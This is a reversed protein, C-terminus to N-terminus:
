LMGGWRTLYDSRWDGEAHDHAEFIFKYSGPELTVKYQCYEYTEPRDDVHYDTWGRHITVSYSTTLWQQYDKTAPTGPPIAPSADDPYCSITGAYQTGAPQGNSVTVASRTDLYNHSKVGVGGAKGTISWDIINTGDSNLRVPTSGNYERVTAM